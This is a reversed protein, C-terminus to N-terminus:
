LLAEAIRLDEKTTVKLNRYSGEVIKVRTRREILSADDTVSGSRKSYAKKIFSCRFAQPTQARFVKTRDITGKIFLSKDTLKITDSEPVAVVASGFKVSAAIAKNITKEDILPRAADHIIVIDFSPDVRKMCNRVSEFRTKGGVVVDILKRIKFRRAIKKLRGVCVRETAAIIGDVAKCNDLTRLAYSVLPKGALLVFPKKDKAGLRKGYGASPVIAVVRPRKM